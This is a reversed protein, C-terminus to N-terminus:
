GPVPGLRDDLQAEYDDWDICEDHHARAYETREIVLRLVEPDVPESDLSQWMEEALARRDPADLSRALELVDALTM